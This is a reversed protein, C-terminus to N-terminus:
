NSEHVTVPYRQVLSQEDVVVGIPYITQLSVFLEGPGAGHLRKANQNASFTKGRVNEYRSLVAKPLNLHHVGYNITM